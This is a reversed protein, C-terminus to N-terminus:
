CGGAPKDLHLGGDLCGLALWCGGSQKSCACLACVCVGGSAHTRVSWRIGVALRCTRVCVCVLAGEKGMKGPDYVLLM